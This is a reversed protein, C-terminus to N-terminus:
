SRQYSVIDDYCYSFKEYLTMTDDRITVTGNVNIRTTKSSRDSQVDCKQNGFNRASVNRHDHKNTLEFTFQSYKKNEDNSNIDTDRIIDSPMSEFILHVQDAM